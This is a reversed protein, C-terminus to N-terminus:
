GHAPGGVFDIFNGLIEALALLIEEEDDMLDLILRMTTDWNSSKLIKGLIYPLLETRTREPGLAIAVTNLSKVSNM